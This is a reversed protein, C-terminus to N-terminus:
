QTLDKERTDGSIEQFVALMSRRVSETLEPVDDSTLGVTDIKPLIRVACKGTTFKKEKKCFFERYSSMVVPIIPVQAQVALHFAGRKFPLMSGDHNRTGEPFVWVRVDDQIMTQAAECMVSIADDTKKRNIFIVGALWCALGATGAYMLEKKAIPVCRGPLIEMM